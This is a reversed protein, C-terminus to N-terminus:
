DVRWYTVSGASKKSFDLVATITVASEGVLGTSIVDFTSSSTALVKDISDDLEIGCNNMVSERFEKGKSWDSLMQLIELQELCNDLEHDAPQSLAYARILGKRVDHGATNINIKGAGWVTLSEGWREFVEDEWGAVLRVEQLTDFPANKTLYPSELNNYLNDEYGGTGGARYNDSDVWDKINGILEWRDLNQDRLWEENEEGSMLAYLQLGTASEQIVTATDDAIMNLNIRSEHDILEASFDGEFDLFNRDSFVGGERSDEIIEDSLAGTQSFQELEEDEIDDIDGGSSMLMRILGTNIMPVMQWLADGLNVGFMDAAGSLSENQSMAKNAVLILRYMSAGSRALWYAQVHDRRHATVLFRARATYTLESIIVTLVMLTSIVVLIAIGSRRTGRRKRTGMRGLSIHRPRTLETILKRAPNM